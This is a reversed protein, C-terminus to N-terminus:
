VTDGQLQLIAPKTSEPERFGSFFAVVCQIEAGDYYALAKRITLTYMIGESKTSVHLFSNVREICDSNHLPLIHKAHLYKHCSFRIDCPQTAM